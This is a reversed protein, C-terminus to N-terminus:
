EDESEDALPCNHIVRATGDIEVGEICVYEIEVTTVDSTSARVTIERVRNTLDKGDVVISADAGRVAPLTLKVPQRDSEPTSRPRLTM